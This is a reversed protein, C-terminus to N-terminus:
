GHFYSSITPKVIYTFQMIGNREAGFRLEAVAQARGSVAM